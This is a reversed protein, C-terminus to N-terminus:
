PHFLEFFTASATENYVKYMFIAANLINLKYLSLIKQSNFLEKTRDFRTKIKVIRIVHKQQSLLKKLNTRNTSAWSLNAYNLYTHNYSYHLTLLSHKGLFLKARYLLGTSKAIKNETYRIYEKWSLYKDLLVGLFKIM